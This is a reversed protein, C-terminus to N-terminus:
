RRGKLVVVALLITTLAGGATVVPHQRVTGALRHTRDRAAGAAAHMMAVRRRAAERLRAKVDAKHQLASVTAGLEARTLEVEHYLDEDTPSDGPLAHRDGEAKRTSM